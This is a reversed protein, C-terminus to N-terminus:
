CSQEPSLSFKICLFPLVAPVTDKLEPPTPKSLLKTLEDVTFLPLCLEPLLTCSNQESQEKNDAHFLYLHAPLAPKSALPTSNNPHSPPNISFLLTITAPSGPLM